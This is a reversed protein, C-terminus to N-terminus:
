PLAAPSRPTRNISQNSLSAAPEADALGYRVEVKAGEAAHVWIRASDATVAGVLPGTPEISGQALVSGVFVISLGRAIAAARATVM